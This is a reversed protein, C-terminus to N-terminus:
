WKGGGGGGWWEPVGHKGKWGYSGSPGSEGKRALTGGGGGGGLGKGAVKEFVAALEDKDFWLGHEPCRDLTPRPKEIEDDLSIRLKLTSMQSHCKPCSRKGPQEDHFEFTADLSTMDRIATALDTLDLLMGYCKDCVHRGAFARLTARCAPCSLEDDRYATM